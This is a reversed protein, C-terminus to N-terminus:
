HLLFETEVILRDIEHRVQVLQSLARETLAEHQSHSDIEGPGSESCAKWVAEYYEFAAQWQHVLRQWEVTDKNPTPLTLL